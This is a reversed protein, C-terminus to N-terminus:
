RALTARARGAGKAAYLAADARAVLAEAAEDGDWAAIGASATQGLPVLRLLRGVAIEADEASTHPLLLAFEEGGYRALTDTPRLTDRWAAATSKLLHDGAPHGHRDNYAKFRDLDLMVLCLQGGHRRARALERALDEDWVRRNALGTLPDTRATANLQALLATRHVTVAVEGAVLDLLETLRPPLGARREQWLVGLVGAVRGDSRVPSWHGSAGGTVAAWGAPVRPDARLDGIFVPGGETFALDAACRHGLEIRMGAADIGAAASAQLAGGDPAPEWLIVAHAGALERTGECIATRAAVM